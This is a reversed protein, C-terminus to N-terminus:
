SACAHLFRVFARLRESYGSEVIDDALPTPRWRHGILLPAIDRRIVYSIRM